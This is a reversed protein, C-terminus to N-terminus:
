PLVVATPALASGGDVGNGLAGRLGNGWTYVAGNAAIALAHAHGAALTRWGDGSAPLLQPYDTRAASGGQLPQNAAGWVLIRGQRLAISVQVDTSSLLAVGDLPTGAAALLPLPGNNVTGSPQPGLGLEGGDNRGSSMVTGDDRLAILGVYTFAADRLTGWSAPLAQPSAMGGVYGQNAPVALGFQNGINTGWGFARGDELIVLVPGSSPQASHQQAVLRAPTGPLGQVPVAVGVADTSYQTLTGAVWVTKASGANCDTPSGFGDLSRIMLLRDSTAAISCVRDVPAAQLVGNVNRRELVEVPTTNERFNPIVGLNGAGDAGRGDVGSRSRGWHLVRSGASGPDGKLAWFGDYWGAIQRVDALVAPYMQVPRRAQDAPALNSVMVTGDVKHLGGWGWVTRDPRLVMSWEHGAVVQTATLSGPPVASTVSLTAANSTASGLSNVATFTFVKGNCALPVNILRLRSGTQDYGVTCSGETFTIATGFPIRQGNVFWQPDPPPSGSALALLDVAGGEVVSVDVPQQTIAPAAPATVNLVAPGGVVSGAQNYAISTYVSGHDALTVAPLTLGTCDTAGPLVAGNKLWLCQPAPAGTALMAIRPTDGAVAQVVFTQLTYVPAGPAAAVVLAAPNSTTTMGSADTAQVTYNGADSAAVAPLTLVPQTAGAIPAGERLWQYSIAGTGRAVAAFTATQGPNLSLGTPQLEFGLPVPVVPLGVQLGAADSTVSSVSNSVVVQYGGAEAPTARALILVPSDPFGSM